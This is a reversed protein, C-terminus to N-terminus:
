TIYPVMVTQAENERRVETSNPTEQIRMLVGQLAAADKATEALEKILTTNMLVEDPMGQAM